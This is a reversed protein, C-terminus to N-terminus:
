EPYLVPRTHKEWDIVSPANQRVKYDIVSYKVAYVVLVRVSRQMTLTYLWYIGNINNLVRVQCLLINDSMRNFIKPDYLMSLALFSPATGWGRIM